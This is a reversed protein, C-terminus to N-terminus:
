RNRKRSAKAIANRKNRKKAYATGRKRTSGLHRREEVSSMSAAALLASMGIMQEMRERM